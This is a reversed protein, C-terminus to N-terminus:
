EDVRQGPVTGASAQTPMHVAAIDDMHGMQQREESSRFCVRLERNMKVSAAEKTTRYSCLTKNAHACSCHTTETARWQQMGESCSVQAITQHMAHTSNIETHELKISAKQTNILQHTNDIHSKTQIKKITEITPCQKICQVYLTLQHTSLNCCTKDAYVCSCYTIKTAGCQQM